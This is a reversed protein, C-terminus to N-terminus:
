NFKVSVGTTLLSDTHELGPAVDTNHRLTFGVNLALARTMSLALGANFQSRYDGRDTLNPFITFDQRLSLTDTLKHSSEEGLILSAYSRGNGVKRGLPRISRYREDSYELGGILNFINQPTNVLKYGLGVSPSLRRRLGAIGDREAELGAFSFVVENLNRDYRTGLRMQNGSTVGTNKAYLGTGYLRWRDYLTARIAEGNLTLSSAQTNGSSNSFAAGLAARWEGDDSPTVLNPVPAQAMAASACLSAMLWMGTSRRM